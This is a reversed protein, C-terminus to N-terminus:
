YRRISPDVRRSWADIGGDLNLVNRFGLFRLYQCAALSRVGHHCLLVYSAERDLESAWHEIEGLPRLLSGEIRALAYEWPERVDILTHPTGARRMEAYELASLNFRTQM